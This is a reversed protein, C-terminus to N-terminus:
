SKVYGPSKHQSPAKSPAAMGFEELLDDLDDSGGELNDLMDELEDLDDTPRLAKKPYIPPLPTGQKSKKEENQTPTRIPVGQPQQNPGPVASQSIPRAAVGGTAASNRSPAPRERSGSKRWTDQKSEERITPERRPSKSDHMGQSSLPEIGRQAELRELFTM